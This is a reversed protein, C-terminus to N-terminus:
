LTRRLQGDEITYGARELARVFPESHGDLQRVRGAATEVVLDSILQGDFRVEPNDRLFRFLERCRQHIAGGRRELEDLEWRLVMDEFDGHYGIVNGLFTCAEFIVARPFPM